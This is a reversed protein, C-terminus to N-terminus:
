GRKCSACMDIDIDIDIDIDSGCKWGRAQGEQRNRKERRREKRYFLVKIPQGPRCCIASKGVFLLSPVDRSATM